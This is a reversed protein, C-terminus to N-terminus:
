RSQQGDCWAVLREVLPGGRSSRVADHPEFGPWSVVGCRGAHPSQQLTSAFRLAGAPDVVRDAGSVQLFVPLPYPAVRAATRAMLAEVQLLFSLPVKRLILPDAAQLRQEVALDSVFPTAWRTSVGVGCRAAGAAIRGLLGPGSRTTRAQWSQRVIWRGVVGHATPQLAPNLLIVGALATRDHEALRAAVEAAILGGLSHGIIFLPRRGARDSQEHTPGCRALQAVQELAQDLRLGRLTRTQGRRVRAARQRELPPVMRWRDVLEQASFRLTDIGLADWESPHSTPPGHGPLHALRVSIGHRVLQRAFPFWRFAHECIGHVVIAEAWPDSAIPEFSYACPESARVVRVADDEFIPALPEGVVGENM